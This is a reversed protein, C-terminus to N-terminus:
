LNVIINRDKNCVITRNVTKNNYTVTYNVLTGREVLKTSTLEGNIKIIANDKNCTINLTVNDFIFPNDQDPGTYVTVGYYSTDYLDKDYMAINAADRTTSYITSSKTGLNLFGSPYIYIPPGEITLEVTINIWPLMYSRVFKKIKALITSNSYENGVITLNATFRQGKPSLKDWTIYTYNIGLTDLCVNLGEEKGKLTYILNFFILLKTLQDSSLTFIDILYDFGLEKIINVKAEYTLKSYDRCRYLTDYYAEKIQEFTPQENSILVNLCDVISLMLKSDHQFKPLYTRADLIYEM